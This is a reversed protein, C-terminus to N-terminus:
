GVLKFDFFSYNCGSNRLRMTMLTQGEQLYVYAVPAINWHHYGRRWGIGDATNLTRPATCMVGTEPDVVTGTNNGFDLIFQAGGAGEASYLLKVEYIGTTEIDLTYKQWHTDGTWGVYTTNLWEDPLFVSNFRHFDVINADARNMKGGAWGGKLISTDVTNNAVRRFNGFYTNRLNQDSQLGDSANRNRGQNYAVNAGGLDYYAPMVKGPVKQGTESYPEPIGAPSTRGAWEGVRKVADAEPESKPYNLDVFPKGTYNEPFGKHNLAQTKEPLTFRGVVAVKKVGGNLVTSGAIQIRVFAEGTYNATIPILYTTASETVMGSNAAISGDLMDIAFRADAAGRVTVSNPDLERAVPFEIKLQTTVPAAGTAEVAYLAWEFEGPEETLGPNPPPKNPDPNPDVPNNGGGNGPNEPTPKSPANDTYFSVSVGGVLLVLIGNATISGTEAAGATPTLTIKGGAVAYTGSSAGMGAEVRTWKGDSKLQFFTGEAKVGGPYAYYIGAYNSFDTAKKGGGDTDVCSAFLLPTLMLVTAILVVALNKRKKGM